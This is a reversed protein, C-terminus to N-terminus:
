TLQTSPLHEDIRIKLFNLLIDIVKTSWFFIMISVENEVYIYASGKRNQNNYYDFKNPFYLLFISAESFVSMKDRLIPEAICTKTSMNSHIKIQADIFIM